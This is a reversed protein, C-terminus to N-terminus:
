AINVCLSPNALSHWSMSPLYLTLVKNCAQVDEAFMSGDYLAVRRFVRSEGRSLWLLFKYFRIFWRYLFHLRVCM